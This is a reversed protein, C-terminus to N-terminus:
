ISDQEEKKLFYKPMINGYILKNCIESEKFKKKIVKSNLKDRFKLLDISTISNTKVQCSFTKNKKIHKFSSIVKGRANHGHCEKCSVGRPNNYLMKGYEYQTIFSNDSENKILYSTVDVNSFLLMPLLIILTKIM